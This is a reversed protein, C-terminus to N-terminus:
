SAFVDLEFHLEISFFRDTMVMIRMFYLGHGRGIAWVSWLSIIYLLLGMVTDSTQVEICFRPLQPIRFHGRGFSSFLLYCLAFLLDFTSLPIM